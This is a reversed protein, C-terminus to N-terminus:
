TLFFVDEPDALQGAEALHSGIIRAACRAADVCHLFGSKGVERIPLYEAAPRLVLRARIKNVANVNAM